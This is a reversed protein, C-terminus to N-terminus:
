IMFACSIDSPRIHSEWLWVLVLFVPNRKYGWRQHACINSCYNPLALTEAMAWFGRRLTLGIFGVDANTIRVLHVFEQELVVM